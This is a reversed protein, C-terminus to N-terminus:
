GIAWVRYSLNVCSEQVHLAPREYRPQLCCTGNQCRENGTGKHGKNCCQLRCAAQRRGGVSSAVSGSDRPMGTKNFSSTRHKRNNAKSVQSILIHETGYSLDLVGASTYAANELVKRMIGMAGSAQFIGACYIASMWQAGKEIYAERCSRLVSCTCV